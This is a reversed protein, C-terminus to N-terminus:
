RDHECCEEDEWAERGEGILFWVVGLSATADVWWADILLQAVLAAVVVFALWDCTISEVADTRLSRSGLENAVQLKRRSLFHGRGAIEAHKRVDGIAGRKRATQGISGRLCGDPRDSGRRRVGQGALDRDTKYEHGRRKM